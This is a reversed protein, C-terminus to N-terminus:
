FGFGTSLAITGSKFDQSVGGSLDLKTVFLNLGVGAGYIPNKGGFRAGTRAYLLNFINWELGGQLSPGYLLQNSFLDREFSQRMDAMATFGLPLRYAAGISLAMPETDTFNISKRDGVSTLSFQSGDFKGNFESESGPWFVVPNVLTAGVALREDLNVVAGLDIGSGMSDAARAKLKTSVAKAYDINAFNSLQQSLDQMKSFDSSITALAADLGGLPESLNVTTQAGLSGVPGINFAGGGNSTQLSTQIPQGTVFLKFSGGVSAKAKPFFPLAPFPIPQSLSVATTAYARNTETITLARDGTDNADKKMFPKFGNESTLEARVKAVDDLVAQPDAENSNLRSVLGAVATKLNQDLTPYNTVFGLLEPSAISLDLGGDVWARAGVAGWALQSKGNAGTNRVGLLSPVPMKFGVLGSRLGLDISLKDNVAAKLGAPMAVADPVPQPENSALSPSYGFFYNGLYGAYAATEQFDTVGIVNTGGGLGLNPGLYLWGREEHLLAPNSLTGNVDSNAFASYHGGLSLARPDLPEAAFSPAAMVPLTAATLAIAWLQKKM